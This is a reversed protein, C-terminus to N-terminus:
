HTVNFDSQSEPKRHSTYAIGQRVRGSYRKDQISSEQYTKILMAYDVDIGFADDVANIYPEIPRENRSAKEARLQPPAKAKRPVAYAHKLL